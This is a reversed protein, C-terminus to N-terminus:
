NKTIVRINSTADILATLSNEIADEQAKPQVLFVFNLFFLFVIKSLYFIRM